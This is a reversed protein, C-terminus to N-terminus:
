NAHPIVRHNATARRIGATFFSERVRPIAQQCAIQASLPAMLVADGLRSDLEFRTKSFGSEALLANIEDPGFGWFNV